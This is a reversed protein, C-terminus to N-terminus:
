PIIEKKLLVYVLRRVIEEEAEKVDAEQVFRENANTSLRALLLHIIEHLACKRLEINNLPSIKSSWGADLFITAVYGGLKFGIESRNGELKELKYYVDWNNLNFRNIYKQCCDKFFQFQKQTVKPM